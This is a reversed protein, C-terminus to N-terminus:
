REDIEREGQTERDRQQKKRERERERERRGNVVGKSVDCNLTLHSTQKKCSGYCMYVVPM